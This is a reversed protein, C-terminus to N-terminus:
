NRKTLLDLRISILLKELFEAIDNKILISTDPIDYYKQVNDYNVRILTCDEHIESIKEFPFRIIIPTNFGV